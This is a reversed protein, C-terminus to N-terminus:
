IESRRRLEEICKSYLYTKPKSKNNVNPKCYQRTFKCIPIKVGGVWQLMQKNEALQSWAARFHAMRGAYKVELISDGQKTREGTTGPAKRRAISTPGPINQEGRSIRDLRRRGNRLQAARGTKQLSLNPLVCIM